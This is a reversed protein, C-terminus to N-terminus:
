TYVLYRLKGKKRDNGFKFLFHIVNSLLEKRRERLEKCEEHREEQGCHMVREFETNRMRRGEQFLDKRIRNLFDLFIDELLELVPVLRGLCGGDVCVVFVEEVLIFRDLVDVFADNACDDFVDDPLVPLM